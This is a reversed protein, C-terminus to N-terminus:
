QLKGLARFSKLEQESAGFTEVRDVNVFASSYNPNDKRFQVEVQPNFGKGALAVEDHKVGGGSAAAKQASGVKVKHKCLASKPLWGSPSEIQYWNGEEGVVKLETGYSVEGVRGGLYNPTSRVTESRVQVSMAGSGGGKKPREASSVAPILLLAILILFLKKM